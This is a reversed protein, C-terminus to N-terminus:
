FPNIAENPFKHIPREALKMMSYMFDCFLEPLACIHNVSTVYTPGAQWEIYASVVDTRPDWTFEVGPYEPHKANAGTFDHNPTIIWRPDPKKPAWIPHSLEKGNATYEFTETFSGVIERQPQTM